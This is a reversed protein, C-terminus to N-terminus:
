FLNSYYFRANKIKNEKANEKALAVAKRNIDVGEVINKQNSFACELSVIGCGCGVELIRGNLKKAHKALLFSDEAPEYVDRLTKIKLVM